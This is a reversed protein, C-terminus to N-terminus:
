FRLRLMGGIMLDSFSLTGGPVAFAESGYWFMGGYEWIGPGETMFAGAVLKFGSYSSISKKAGKIGISGSAMFPLQLESFWDLPLEGLNIDGVLRGFLGIRIVDGGGFKESGVSLSAFGARAGADLRRLGSEGLALRYYGGGGAGFGFYSGKGTQGFEVHGTVEVDIDAAMPIIATGEAYNVVWMPMAAAASAAGSASWLRPGGSLRIESFLGEGLQRQEGSYGEQQQHQDQDEHQDEDEQQQNRALRRASVAPTVPKRVEMRPTPKAPAVVPVSAKRSKKSEKKPYIPSIVVPGGHSDSLEPRGGRPAYRQRNKIAPIKAGDGVRIAAEHVQHLLRAISSHQKLDIIRATGLMKNEFSIWSGNAPHVATVMTKYFTLQDGVRINQLKGGSLTIYRGQVSTVTVDVPLRNFLRFFLDGIMRATDTPKQNFLRNRGITESEYLYNQKLDPSLLRALVTVVDGRISLNLGAFGSLEYQEVLQRRGEPRDWYDKSLEDNIVQFRHSNHVAKYYAPDVVKRVKELGFWRDSGGEWQPPIIGIRVLVPMKGIYSEGGEAAARSAIIAALIGPLLWLTISKIGPPM